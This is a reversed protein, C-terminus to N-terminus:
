LEPVTLHFADNRDEVLCLHYGAKRGVKVFSERDSRSLFGGGSTEEDATELAAPEFFSGTVYMAASLDDSGERIATADSVLADMQDGTVPDRGTNVDAVVLPNGMRDRLVVDFTRSVSTEEDPEVDVTGNLEARDVRPLAEYLDSLGSQHGSDRVEYPLARVAWSVFQYVTTDHLYSEFPEGDVTASEADFQTHHDIRLNENVADPDTSRDLEDLTPQGKSDYRVFLNTGSLADVANLDTASPETDSSADAAEMASLEAELDEIEAQLDGRESELAEVREQLDDREGELADIRESAAQLKQERQKVAQKLKEVTSKGGTRSQSRKTRAGASTNASRSRSSGSSSASSADDGDSGGESDGPDITPVSTTKRWEREEDFAQEGEQTATGGDNAAVSESETAAGRAESEATAGRSGAARTQEANATSERSSSPQRTPESADTSRSNPSGSARPESNSAEAEARPQSRTASEDGAADERPEDDQGEETDGTSLATSADAEGAAEDDADTASPTEADSQGESEDGREDDLPPLETVSVPTKLVEYVGVEDDAREFAEDGTILEESAGVFAASMSRGGYYVVYYDGSLVNESLEIYGTFNADSLTESAESLPTDNTYYKAQTEGGREQMSYLLVLSEHPAEYVTGDADVVDEVEGGFVGVVRGNLLFLWTAGVSVAGSFDADALEHLERVGGTFPRSGWNEVREVIRAQM